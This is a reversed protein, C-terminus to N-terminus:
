MLDGMQEEFNNDSGETEDDNIDSDDSDWIIESLDIDDNIQIGKEKFTNQLSNSFNSYINNQILKYFIYFDDENISMNTDELNNTELNIEELNQEDEDNQEDNITEEEYIPEDNIENDDEEESLTKSPTGVYYEFTKLVLKITFIENKFILKEISFLPIIERKTEDYKDFCENKCVIDVCNEEVNITLYEEFLKKLTTMNFTGDFWKSQNEYVNNIISNYIQYLLKLDKNNTVTLSASEEDMNRIIVRENTNFEIPKDEYKINFEYHGSIECPNEIVFNSNDINQINM